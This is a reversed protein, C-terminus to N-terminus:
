AFRRVARSAKFDSVGFPASSPSRPATPRTTPLGFAALQEPVFNDIEAILGDQVRMLSLTFARHETTGPLRIYSAVGPQRNARLEYMRMELPTPGHLAPAWASIITARGSYCAPERTDNGGAGPQHSVVADDSLLASIADDDAREIADIYRRVLAREASTPSTRASWEARAPGLHDRLATRARQLASNASPVTTDLAAACREAPWGLVDRLVLVARQRAPLHQLAAIYAIEVTERSTITSAPDPDRAAVRDLLEDPCAQLWPVTAAIPLATGDIITSSALLDRRRRDRARKGLCANTAIRYLWTRVTARGEFDGLSRWAQLFVDQTTDEADDLSGLMRYCHLQLEPRYRDVLRGFAAEDGGQAAAVVARLEGDDV